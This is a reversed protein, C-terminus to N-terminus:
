IVHRLHALLRLHDVTVVAILAEVERETLYPLHLHAITRHTLLNQGIRMAGSLEASDAGRAILVFPVFREVHLRSVFVIQRGCLAHVEPLTFLAAAPFRLPAKTQLLDCSFFRM